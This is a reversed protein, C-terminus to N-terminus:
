AGATKIFKMGGTGMATVEFPWEIADGATFSVNDTVAIQGETCGFAILDDGDVIVFLYAATPALSGASLNVTTTAPTGSSTVAGSGFLATLATLDTSICSGSASEEHDTLVVRRITNSWDKINEKDRSLNLTMGEDSVYGVETGWATITADDLTAPLATGSAATLFMGTARGRGINVENTVAM